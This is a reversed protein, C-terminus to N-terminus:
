HFFTYKSIKRQLAEYLENQESLYLYAIKNQFLPDDKIQHMIVKEFDPTGPLPSFLSL